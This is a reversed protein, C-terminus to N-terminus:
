TRGIDDYELLESFEFGFEEAIPTNIETENFARATDMSIEKRNRLFM